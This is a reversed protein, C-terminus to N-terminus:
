SIIEYDRYRLQEYISDEKIKRPGEPSDPATETITLMITGDENETRELIHVRDEVPSGDAPRKWEITVGETLEIVTDTEM